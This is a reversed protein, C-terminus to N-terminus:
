GSRVGCSLLPRLQPRRRRTSILSTPLSRNTRSGHYRFLNTTPNSKTRHHAYNSTDVPQYDTTTGCSSVYARMPSRTQCLKPLGNHRGRLPLWAKAREGILAKAQATAKHHHTASDAALIYATSGSRTGQVKLSHMDASTVLMAASPERGAMMVFRRCDRM